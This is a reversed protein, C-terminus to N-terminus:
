DNSFRCKVVHAGAYEKLLEPRKEYEEEAYVSLVDDSSFLSTYLIIDKGDEITAPATIPGYARGLNEGPAPIPESTSSTRSGDQMKTFTWQFDPTQVVSMALDGDWSKPEDAMLSLGAAHANMLEGDEYIELWVDFRLYQEQTHYSFLAIEQDAGLLDVIDQQDKTLAKPSIANQPQIPACSCLLLVAACLIALIRTTTRKM